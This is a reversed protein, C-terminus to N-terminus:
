PTSTKSPACFAIFAKAFALSEDYISSLFTSVPMPSNRFYLTPPIMDAVQQLAAVSERSAVCHFSMYEDVTSYHTLRDRLHIVRDIWRKKHSLLLDVLPQAPTARHNRELFNLMRQGSKSFTGMQSGFRRDYFPVLRDLVGKTFILFAKFDVFLEKDSLELLFPASHNKLTKLEPLYHDFDPSGKELVLKLRNLYRDRALKLELLAGFFSNTLPLMEKPTPEIPAFIGRADSYVETPCDKSNVIVMRFLSHMTFRPPQDGGLGTGPPSPPTPHRLWAPVSAPVQSPPLRSHLPHFTGCPSKGRTSRAAPGDNGAARRFSRACRAREDFVLRLRAEAFLSGQPCIDSAARVPIECALRAM